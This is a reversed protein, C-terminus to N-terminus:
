KSKWEGSLIEKQSYRPAFPEGREAKSQQLKRIETLQIHLEELEMITLKGLVESDQCLKHYSPEGFKGLYWRTYVEPYFEHKINCGACQVSCNRLDWRISRKARTILHGCQMAGAHSPSILVCYNDRALVIERTIEDLRKEWRKRESVQKVHKRARRQPKPCPTVADMATHWDAARREKTLPM